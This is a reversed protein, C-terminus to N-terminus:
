RTPRCARASRSPSACSTRGTSTTPLSRSSRSSRPRSADIPERVALAADAKQIPSSACKLRTLGHSMPLPGANMDSLQVHVPKQPDNLMYSRDAALALEFLTGAFCSGPEIVAFFSRGTVDLRRLARGLQLVTEKVLWHGAHKTLMADVALVKAADGSTKLLVLGISDCAFRLQLLADDLERAMAIAWARCGRKQLEEPTKPEEGM